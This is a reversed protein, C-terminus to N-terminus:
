TVEVWVDSHQSVETVTGPGKECDLEFESYYVRELDKHIHPTTRIAQIHAGDDTYTDLDLAYIHGNFADGV